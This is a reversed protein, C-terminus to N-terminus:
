REKRAEGHEVTQDHQGLDQRQDVTARRAAGLRDAVSGKRTETGDNHRRSTADSPKTGISSVVSVRASTCFGSAVTTM